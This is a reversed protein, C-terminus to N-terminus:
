LSICAYWMYIYICICVYEGPLRVDSMAVLRAWRGRVEGVAARVVRRKQGRARAGPPVRPVGCQAGWAEQYVVAQLWAFLGVLLLFRTVM